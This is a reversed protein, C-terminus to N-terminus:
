VGSEPVSNRACKWPGAFFPSTAPGPTADGTKCLMVPPEGGPGDGTPLGFFPHTRTLSLCCCFSRFLPSQYMLMWVMPGGGAFTLPSIRPWTSGSFPMLYLFTGGIWGTAEGLPANRFQDGTLLAPTAAAITAAGGRRARALVGARRPLRLAPIAGGGLRGGPRQAPDGGRGGDSGRADGRGPRVRLRGADRHGRDRRHAREAGGLRGRRADRARRARWRWRTPRGWTAGTAKPLYSPCRASLQSLPCLAPVVPREAFAASLQSLPGKRRISVSLANDSAILRERGESSRWPLEETPRPDGHRRHHREVNVRFRRLLRIAYAPSEAVLPSGFSAAIVVSRCRRRRRGISPATTSRSSPMNARVRSPFGGCSATSM